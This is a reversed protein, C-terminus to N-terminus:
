TLFLTPTFSTGSGVADLLLDFATSKVAKQENGTLRTLSDTFSNAIRLDLPM